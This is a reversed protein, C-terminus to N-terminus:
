EDDLDPITPINTKPYTTKNQKEVIEEDNNTEYVFGKKVCLLKEQETLGRYTGDPEKVSFAVFLEKDGETIKKVYINSVVDVFVNENDTSKLMTQPKDFKKSLPATFGQINSKKVTTTSTNAVSMPEAKLSNGEKKAGDKKSCDKCFDSGDVAVKNCNQGKNVGRKYVYKCKPGETPSEDKSKKKTEKVSSSLHPPFSPQTTMNSMFSTPKQFKPLELVKMLDDVKVELNKEEKLWDVIPVLITSTVFSSVSETFSNISSSM